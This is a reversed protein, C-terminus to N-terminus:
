EIKELSNGGGFFYGLMEGIAGATVYIAILPACIMYRAVFRKKRRLTMLGRLFLLPPLLASGIGYKIRGRADLSQLRMAAFARSFQFRQGIFYFFDFPRQHYVLMQSDYNLQVGRARLQDHYFSEWLGRELTERLGNVLERKYAVNNGPLGRASTQPEASQIAGAYETLFAAWDRLRTTSANEVPGGVILCDARQLARAITALWTEDPVCHDETVCVIDSHARELAISRLTTIPTRPPAAILTVQPFQERVQAHESEARRTAIIIEDARQTQRALARLGPALLDFSNVWAIVVAISSIPETM